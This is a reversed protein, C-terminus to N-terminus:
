PLAFVLSVPSPIQVVSGSPTLDGTNPDIRFVVVTGSDQNAALLYV